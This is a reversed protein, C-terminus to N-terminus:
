SCVKKEYPIRLRSLAAPLSALILVFFATMYIWCSMVRSSALCLCLGSFDIVAMLSRDNYRNNQEYVETIAVCLNLLFIATYGIMLGIILCSQAIGLSYADEKGDRQIHEDDGGDNKSSSSHEQRSRAMSRDFPVISFPSLCWAVFRKILPVVIGVRSPIDFYRYMWLAFYLIVLIDSAIVIGGLIAVGNNTGVKAGGEGNDIGGRRVQDSFLQVRLITAISFIVHSTIFIVWGMRLIPDTVETTGGIVIPSAASSHSPAKRGCCPSSVGVGGWKRDALYIYMLLVGRFIIIVSSYTKFFTVLQQEADGGRVISTVPGVGLEDASSLLYSSLYCLTFGTFTLSTLAVVFRGASLRGRVGFLQDVEKGLPSLRHDRDRCCPEPNKNGGAISSEKNSYEGHKREERSEGSFTWVLIGFFDLALEIAAFVAVGLLFAVGIALSYPSEFVSNKELM